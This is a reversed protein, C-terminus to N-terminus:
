RALYKKICHLAGLSRAFHHFDGLQTVEFGLEEWIERHRADVPALEPWAGQGYTPLWVRHREDDIEVLCNNSTAHYWEAVGAVDVFQDEGVQVRRPARTLATVLLLPSRLVEFGLGELQGAIADYESQLNHTPSEWGLIRDAEGPDGVLVRYPGDPTARGALSIFMDIHFIPQRVGRGGTVDNLWLEGNIEEIGPSPRNEPSSELFHFTRSPDLIAPYLGRAFAEQEEATGMLPFGEIPRHDQALQITEDLYDRGMLVFDDGILVNGGQFSLPVQTSAVADSVGAVLDVVVQDGGRPFYFPEVLYTSVQGAATDTVVVCADEAWVTFALHSPTTAIEVDRDGAERVVAEFEELGDPHVVVTIRTTEPLKTLLDVFTGRHPLATGDATTGWGPYWLMLHRLPGHASSVLRPDQLGAPSVRMAELREFAEFREVRDFREDQRLNRKPAGLPPEDFFMLPRDFM